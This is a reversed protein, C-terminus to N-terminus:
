SLFIGACDFSTVEISTPRATSITPIAPIM